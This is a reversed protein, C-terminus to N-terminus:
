SKEKVCSNKINEFAEQNKLFNLQIWLATMNAPVDKADTNECANVMSIVFMPDAM